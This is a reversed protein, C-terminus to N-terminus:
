KGEEGRQGCANVKGAAVRVAQPVSWGHPEERLDPRNRIYGYEMEIFARCERRTRFLHLDNTWQLHRRRGFLRSKSRWEVGWAM